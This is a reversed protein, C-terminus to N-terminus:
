GPRGPSAGDFASAPLDEVGSAIADCITRAVATPDLGKGLKPSTGQVPHRSLDTETHPPRADLIRLQERRAERAFAEDFARLAAKSAGYAAMGPLNREAIVGPLNVIVGGRSLRPLAAKALLVPLMTNTLLLEELADVSLESVPGFAVVGTANVVVDLRGYRHVAGAVATECAEPTRLDLALRAGPVALASLKEESRGVLTLDAGRGHLEDAIASGIGGSAGALLVSAGSLEYGSSPDGAPTWVPRPGPGDIAESREPSRSTPPQAPSM